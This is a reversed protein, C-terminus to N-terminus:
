QEGDADEATRIGPTGRRVTETEGRKGKRCIEGRRGVLGHRTEDDALVLSKALPENENLILTSTRPLPFFFNRNAKEM